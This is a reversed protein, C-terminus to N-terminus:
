PPSPRARMVAARANVIRLLHGAFMLLEVAETADIDVPRHGTSNRIYQIAGAFLHSLGEQEGTPATTDALPGVGPAFALRMMAAGHQDAGYACVERVHIEVARMAQFVATEYDGRLFSGRVREEIAPHLLGAPLRTAARYREFDDESRIREGRRSIEWWGQASPGPKRVLLGERDLWSWAEMFARGLPGWTDRPLSGFGDGDSPNTLNEPHVDRLRRPDRERPHNNLYVLLVGALEEPELALLTAADPLAEALTAPM